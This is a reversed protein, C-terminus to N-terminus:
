SLPHLLHGNVDSSCQHKKSWRKFRKRSNEDSRLRQCRPCLDTKRQEDGKYSEGCIPCKRTWDGILCFGKELDNPTLFSFAADGEDNRDAWKMVLAVKGSVAKVEIPNGCRKNFPWISSRYLRRQAVPEGERAKEYAWGSVESPFFATPCYAKEFKYFGLVLFVYKRFWRPCDLANIRGLERETISLRKTKPERFEKALRTAKLALAAFAAERGYAGLSRFDRDSASMVASWRKRIDSLTLGKEQLYRVYCEQQQYSHKSDWKDEHSLVGKQDIIISNEIWDFIM